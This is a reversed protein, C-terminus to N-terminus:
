ELLAESFIYTYHTKIDFIRPTYVNIVISAFAWIRNPM